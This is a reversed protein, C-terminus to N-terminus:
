RNGSRAAVGFTRVLSRSFPISTDTPTLTVYINIAGHLAPKWSCTASTTATVKNKCGSIAKGDAFFTTKGPTSLAATLTYTSRYVLPSVNPSVGSVAVTSSDAGGIEIGLQFLFNSSTGTGWTAGGDNSQTYFVSTIGTLSDVNMSGNNTLDSNLLPQGYCGPFSSFAQGPTIWFKTGSSATFTGTYRALGGTVNSPTFTAAIAGPNGSIDPRIYYRSSSFNTTSGNGIQVTIASITSTQYVVYRSGYPTASYATACRNSLSSFGYTPAAYASGQPAMMFFALYFSILPHRKIRRRLQSIM